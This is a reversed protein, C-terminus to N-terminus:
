EVMRKYALIGDSIAKAMEQLKKADYIRKADSPNTLFGGEILVAPMEADRLVLFRARKVGRDEMGLKRVLGKQLQYALLINKSDSRNGARSGTEAGEGRANTSSEYAPTMCYVETGKVSPAESANFHLSVFLDAKRRNALEARSSLEENSDRTRTMVVKLGAKSLLSNVEKALALTYKKEFQKGQLYGPDKGGHGPDLCVTKIKKGTYNKTPRLLPLLTTNVDKWAICPSSGKLAVPHSLWVTLGNIESRRSDIEFGLTAWTNVLRLEQKRVTWKLEFSNAEAWDDLRVYETGCFMFRSLPAGSVTEVAALCGAGILAVLVALKMRRAIQGTARENELM